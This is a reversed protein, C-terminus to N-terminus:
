PALRALIRGLGREMREGIGERAAPAPTAGDAGALAAVADAAQEAPLDSMYTYTVATTQYIARFPPAPNVWLAGNGADPAGTPTAQAPTFGDAEATHGTLVNIPSPEAPDPALPTGPAQRSSAHPGSAHQELITAFHRGDTLRLELVEDGSIAGARAWVLHFGLERLEPCAWGQSRFAALQGTSLAGAPTFDPEGDLGFGIRTGSGADGAAGPNGAGEAGPQEEPVLPGAVESQALAAAETADAPIAADSGM